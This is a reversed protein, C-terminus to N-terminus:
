RSMQEKIKKANRFALYKNHADEDAMAGLTFNFASGSPTQVTRQKVLANYLEETTKNQAENQTWGEEELLDYWLDSNAEMAQTIFHRMNMKRRMEDETDVGGATNQDSNIYNSRVQSWTKTQRDLRQLEEESYSEIDSKASSLLQYQVEQELIDGEDDLQFNGQNDLAYDYTYATSTKLTNSASIRGAYKSYERNATGLKNVTKRMRSNIRSVLKKKEDYTM